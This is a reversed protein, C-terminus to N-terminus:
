GLDFQPHKERRVPIVKVLKEGVIAVFSQIDFDVKFLIKKAQRHVLKRIYLIHWLCSSKMLIGICLPSKKCMGKHILYQYPSSSKQLCNM